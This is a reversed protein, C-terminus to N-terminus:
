ASFELHVHRLLHPFSPLRVRSPNRREKRIAGPLRVRFNDWKSTFRGLRADATTASRRYHLSGYREWTQPCM